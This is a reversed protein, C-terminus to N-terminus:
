IDICMIPFTFSMYSSLTGTIFGMIPTMMGVILNNYLATICFTLTIAPINFSPILPDPMMPLNPFGPISITSLKEQINTLEGGITDEVMSLVSDLTPFTPLGSINGIELFSTVEGILSTISNMVLQMYDSVVLLLIQPAEMNPINLKVYLPNPIFSWSFGSAIASEVAGILVEPNGALLDVLTIGPLGPISPLFASLSGGILSLMPQIMGMM